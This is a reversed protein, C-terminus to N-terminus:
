ASEEDLDSLGDGLKAVRGSARMSVGFLDPVDVDDIVVSYRRRRGQTTTRIGHVDGAEVGPHMKAEYDVSVRAGSTRTVIARAMLDCQSKSTPVATRVVRTVTGIASTGTDSFADTYSGTHRAGSPHEAQVAVSNVVEEIDAEADAEILLDDSPSWVPRSYIGGIRRLVVWGDPRLFTECGISTALEMIVAARSDSEMWTVGPMASGDYSEDIFGRIFPIAERWLSEIQGAITAGAISRRPTLFGHRGVRRALDTLPLSLTAGDRSPRGVVAWMIPIPRGVGEVGRWLRVAVGPVLLDRVERSNPVEITGTRRVLDGNSIRYAGDVVDLNGRKYAHHWVQARLSINHPGRLAEEVIESGYIM